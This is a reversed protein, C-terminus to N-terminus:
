WTGSLKLFLVYIDRSADANYVVRYLDEVLGSCSCVSARGRGTNIGGRIGRNRRGGGARRLSVQDDREIERSVKAWLNESEWVGQEEMPVTYRKLRQRCM